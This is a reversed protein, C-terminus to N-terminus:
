GPLERLHLGMLLPVAPRLGVRMSGSLSFSKPSSSSRLPSTFTWSVLTTPPGTILSISGGLVLRTLSNLITGLGCYRRKSSMLAAAKLIWVPICFVGQVTCECLMITPSLPPQGRVESLLSFMIQIVPCVYGSSQKSQSM